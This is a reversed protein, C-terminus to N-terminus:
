WSLIKVKLFKMLLYLVMGQKKIISVIEDINSISPVYEVYVRETAFNVSANIVGQIKRNLAREINMACNACTMGTVPLEVKATAVTYGSGHINEVVNRVHLIKPDFAVTAQEAAFNVNAEKIGNLKNVAREINMACNVCTMGTIPLTVKQDTM